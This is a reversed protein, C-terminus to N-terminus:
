QSTLARRVRDEIEPWTITRVQRPFTTHVPHDRPEPCDPCEGTGPSHPRAPDIV